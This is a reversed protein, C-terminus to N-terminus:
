ATLAPSRGSRARPLPDYPGRTRVPRGPGQVTMPPPSSPDVGNFRVGAGSPKPPFFTRRCSSNPRRPDFTGGGKTPPPGPCLRITRSPRARPAWRGKKLPRWAVLLQGSFPVAAVAGVPGSRPTPKTVMGATNWWRGWPRKANLTGALNIELNVKDSVRLVFTSPDKMGWSVYPVVLKATATLRGDQVTVRAPVTVEHDQGHLRLAGHVVVQHEGELSELGSVRDPLFVAQPFRDSELVGSHMQRDRAEVGTNGSKVDVVVQGGAKGSVPDLHVTGGKVNFTGHVTHLTAGLTFEINSRSPDIGITVEHLSPAAAKEAAPLTAAVWLTLAVFIAAKM